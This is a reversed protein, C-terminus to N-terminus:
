TLALLLRTFLIRDGGWYSMAGMCIQASRIIRHGGHMVAAPM